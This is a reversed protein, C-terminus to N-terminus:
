EVISRVSGQSLRTEIVDGPRLEDARRVFRGEHLTLSFGRSLLRSPDLWELRGSLLEQRHREVSLRRLASPLLSSSLLELGRSASDLRRLVLSRFYLERKELLSLQQARVLSFRMPVLGSLRALRLRALEMGHGVCRALSLQASEIRLLVSRLNEILLDAAATPTKALRHAVLDVVSEDREHGIGTIVPLPFRAVREALLLSDFGSLDATAGGGRILVVCDFEECRLAIADLASAVSRELQEGQMSAEFLVVSFGFGDVNCLLHRRFDEFGAAQVSSVVAIRQAFLGLRLGKQLGFVGLAQLRAVVERRRRALEGLSYSADLDQVIWSFGYCCHFDAVVRLLVKMGARLPEGVSREFCAGLRDWVSRWCKASARAVPVSGALDKEVLEMYCHGRVVRLESVEAELWYSGSVSRGVADRVLGNLELLSFSRELM